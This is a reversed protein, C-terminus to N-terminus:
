SSAKLVSQLSPIKIWQGPANYDERSAGFAYGSSRCWQGKYKFVIADWMWRDVVCVHGVPFAEHREYHALLLNLLFGRRVFAYHHQWHSSPQEALAEDVIRKANDIVLPDEIDRHITAYWLRGKPGCAWPTQRVGALRYNRFM